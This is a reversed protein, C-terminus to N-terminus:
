TQIDRNAHIVILIQLAYYPKQHLIESKIYFNAKIVKLFHKQYFKMRYEKSYRHDTFQYRIRISNSLWQQIEKIKKLLYLPANSIEKNRQSIFRDRSLTRSLKSESIFRNFSGERSLELRTEITLLEPPSDPPSTSEVWYRKPASTAIHWYNM